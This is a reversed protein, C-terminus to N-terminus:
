SVVMLVEHSRSGDREDGGAIGLSLPRMKCDKNRGGCGGVLSGQDLGDSSRHHAVDQLELSVVGESIGCLAKSDHGDAIDVRGIDDIRGVADLTGVGHGSALNLNRGRLDWGRPHALIEERRDVLHAACVNM